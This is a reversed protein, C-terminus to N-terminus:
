AVRPDIEVLEDLVSRLLADFTAPDELMPYHGVGVMSRMAYDAFWRPNAAVAPPHLDGNIARVPVRVQRARERVDYRYFPELLAAAVEGTYALFERTLRTVIAPPTTPAFLFRPVVQEVATRFDRRYLALMADVEAAAPVQEVNKLTDVLVVGVVRDDHLSAEVVNAGSMSHGVLVIRAHDLGATVAAIDDAYAEVSARARDRGSAGHGTLDLQVVTHSSAFTDRQADWWRGSGLWGHM